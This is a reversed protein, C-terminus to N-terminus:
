PQCDEPVEVGMLKAARLLQRWERVAIERRNEQREVQQANSVVFMSRGSFGAEINKIESQAARVVDNLYSLMNRNEALAEEKKDRIETILKATEM